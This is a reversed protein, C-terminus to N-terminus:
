GEVNLLNVVSKADDCIHYYTLSADDMFGLDHTDQLFDALKDYYGLTNYMILKKSHYGCQRASLVDFIEDYTGMGGPLGIFADSMKVMVDKRDVLSETVIIEDCDYLFESSNFIKPTIGVIYGKGASFGKAVAGMLGSKGGGFVLSHGNEALEKGLNYAAIKYEEQILDSSAGFVCIKM